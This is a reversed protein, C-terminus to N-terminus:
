TYSHKTQPNTHTLAASMVPPMLDRAPLVLQRLWGTHTSLVSSTDEALTSHARLASAARWGGTKKKRYAINGKDGYEILQVGFGVQLIM